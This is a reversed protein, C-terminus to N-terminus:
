NIKQEKLENKQTQPSKIDDGLRDNIFNTMKLHRNLLTNIVYISHSRDPLIGPDFQNNTQILADIIRM